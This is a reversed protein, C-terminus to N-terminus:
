VEPVPVDTSALAKMVRYERDIRHATKSIIDGPPQKRLVFKKGSGGNCTILYTPNSQGHSFQSLVLPKSFWEAISKVNDLYNELMQIDIKQRPLTTASDGINAEAKSTM